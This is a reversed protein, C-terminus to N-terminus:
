GIEDLMKAMLRAMKWGLKTPEFRAVPSRKKKNESFHPDISIQRMLEEYSCNKFLLIKEGEYNTCDPYLVKIVLHNGIKAYMLVKYNYPNPNPLTNTFPKRKKVVEQVLPALGDYSSHSFPSLGM